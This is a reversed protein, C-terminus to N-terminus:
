RYFDLIDKWNFFINIKKAFEIAEEYSFDHIIVEFLTTWYSTLLIHLEKYTMDNNSMGRKKLEEIFSFTLEANKETFNHLYNSYNSGKAKCLLMKMADYESYFVDIWTKLYDFGNEANYKMNNNEKREINLEYMKINTREIIDLAPKVMAEFLEEKGKYRTYIAGTAVNARKAIDRLTANNFGKEFFVQKASELILPNLRQDKVAMIEGKSM